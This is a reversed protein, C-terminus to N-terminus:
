PPQVLVAEPKASPTAAPSPLGAPLGRRIAPTHTDASPLGIFDGGLSSAASTGTPTACANNGSAGSGNGFPTFRGAGTDHAGVPM